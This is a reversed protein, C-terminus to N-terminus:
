GTAGEVADLVVVWPLDRGAPAERPEHLPRFQPGHILHVDVQQLAAIHRRWAPHRAHAANFWPFAVVPLGPTGIPEGIQALGQNDAIGLAPKAVTNASAPALVYCDVNPHPRAEGPLRPEHRVPLGTPKELRDAEGNMQLRRGATPTLTVAVQWQLAM